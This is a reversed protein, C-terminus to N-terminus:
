ALPLTLIVRTGSAPQSEIRLTAGIRGARAQMNGLGHGPGDARAPDFGTGNDQVLLCVERDSQHLRVTVFSAGGHRLSNSIAERAVQLAETSQAATLRATAEPDIKLDFNVARGGRLEHILATVAQAFGAQRLQEPALGTIYARVDRITGNLHEVCQALRRDAEAPDSLVLARASEITLGSAYLSQIIGDHLDHGLRVKGELAQNLLQQKFLADEEALRRVDREKTLAATQAVSTEALRTLSGLDARTAGAPIEPGPGTGRWTLTAFAVGVALLAFGFFLLGVTVRQYTALLRSIPSAAFTVRATV